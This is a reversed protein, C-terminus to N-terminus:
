TFVLLLFLFKLGVLYTQSCLLWFFRYTELARFWCKYCRRKFSAWSYISLCKEQIKVLNLYFSSPLLLPFPLRLSLTVLSKITVMESSFKFPDLHSFRIKCGFGLSQFQVYIVNLILLILVHCILSISKNYWKM